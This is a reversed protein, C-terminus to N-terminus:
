GYIDYHIGSGIISIANNQNETSESFNVLMQPVSQQGSNLLNLWYQFGDGDPARNLVNQYFANVLTSSSPNSGYLLKFESSAVFSAAVSELSVGKDMMAIWYGLGGHDPTRDFAAQYIRYAQGAVGEIDLAVTTDSFQLREVGTLTDTGDTGVGDKITWGTTTRTLVYNVLVGNYIVTDTGSGATITNNGKGTTIRDSGNTGSIPLDYDPLLYDNDAIETIIQEYLLGIDAWHSETSSGSSKVGIIYPNGTSDLTYLPGGSSGSGMIDGGNDASSSYVSYSAEHVIWTKGYMMGTSGQPYGAENAWQSTNYGSNLGFWGTQDGIAQSFGILAVDYQTELFSVTNNNGDSFVQTPWAKTIWTYSGSLTYPQSEIVGRASSYDAGPYVSIRNAFGGHDPSYVVHTATLVDNRGVLAGTGLASTGDPFTVRIFTVARYPYLSPNSVETAM